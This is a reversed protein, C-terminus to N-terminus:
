IDKLYYHRIKKGRKSYIFIEIIIQSLYYLFYIALLLDIAHALCAFVLLFYHNERVRFNNNIMRITYRSKPENKDRKFNRVLPPIKDNKSPVVNKELYSRLTSNFTSELYNLYISLFCAAGGIALWFHNINFPRPIILLNNNRFAMIGIVGWFAFDILNGCISDLFKGYPNQTNTARAISGDVCDLLNFLFLLGIGISLLTTGKGIILFTCGALGALGSIWAVSETTQGVRVAAWTLLFGLPRFFFRSFPLYKEYDRKWSHAERINTLTPYTRKM